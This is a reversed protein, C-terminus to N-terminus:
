KPNEPCLQKKNPKFPSDATLVGCDCCIENIKELTAKKQEDTLCTFFTIGGAITVESLGINDPVNNITMSSNGSSNWESKVTEGNTSGFITYTSGVAHASYGTQLTRSNIQQAVRLAFAPATEGPINTIGNDSTLNVDTYVFLLIGENPLLENITFEAIFPQCNNKFHFVDSLFLIKDMLCEAEEHRGGKMAQVYDYGLKGLCCQTRTLVVEIQKQLTM